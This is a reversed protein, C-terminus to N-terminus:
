VLAAPGPKDSISVSEPVSEADDGDRRRRRGSVAILVAVILFAFPIACIWLPQDLLARFQVAPSAAAGPIRIEQLRNNTTDAVVFYDRSSDYAIGTPYAFLGDTQGYDGYRAIQAGKNGPDLVVLQFEFPDIVVLRGQGDLVIGAPLQMAVQDPAVAAVGSKISGSSVPATPNQGTPKGTRGESNVTGAIWLLKGARTYAKVRANRTDSVYLTAGDASWVLGHVGDFQDAGKGRTGWTGILQGASDFLAVGQVTGVAVRDGSVAVSQPAPVFTERVLRGASTYEILAKKQYDVAYINGASDVAVGEIQMFQGPGTGHGPDIMKSLKGDPTLGVLRAKTADMTWITGDPAVAADVPAAFHQSAGPGWQYISRLWTMGAPLSSKAPLGVPQFAQAVLLTLGALLLVLLAIIGALIWRTRKRRAADDVPAVPQESPTMIDTM